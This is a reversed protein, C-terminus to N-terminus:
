LLGSRFDMYLRGISQETFPMDGSEAPCNALPTQFVSEGLLADALRDGAEMLWPQVTLDAPGHLHLMRSQIEGLWRCIELLNVTAADSSSRAKNKTRRQRNRWLRETGITGASVAWGCCNAWRKASHAAVLGHVVVPRQQSAVTRELAAGGACLNSHETARLTSRTSKKPGRPRTRVHRLYQVQARGWEGSSGGAMHAFCRSKFLDAFERLEALVADKQLHEARM